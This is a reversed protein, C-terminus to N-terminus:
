KHSHEFVCCGAKKPRVSAVEKSGHTGTPQVFSDQARSLSPMSHPKKGHDSASDMNSGVKLSSESSPKRKRRRSHASKSTLADASKQKKIKRRTSDQQTQDITAASIEEKVKTKLPIPRSSGPVIPTCVIPRSSGSMVPTSCESEPQGNKKLRSDHVLETESLESEETINEKKVPSVPEAPEHTSNENREQV